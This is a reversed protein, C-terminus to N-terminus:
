ARKQPGTMSEVELAGNSLRTFTFTREGWGSCIIKGGGGATDVTRLDDVWHYRLNLVLREPTEEVLETRLIGGMQPNPCRAQAEMARGGYYSVVQWQLGEHGALPPGQWGCGALAAALLWAQGKTM